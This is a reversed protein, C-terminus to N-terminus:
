DISPNARVKVLIGKEVKPSPSHSRGDGLHTIKGADSMFAQDPDKVISSLTSDYDLLVM